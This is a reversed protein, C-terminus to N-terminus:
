RTKPLYPNFKKEHLLTTSEEHGPLVVYDNGLSCLKQLSKEMLMEDSEELDTRGVDGSFLTDGSFLWDQCIYCVSGKSHGPACLVQLEISGFNLMTDTDFTNTVTCNESSRYMSYKGAEQALKVDDKHCYVPANHYFVLHKVGGCHDFHGHTLLVAQLKLNNDTLFDCVKKGDTCDIVVACLTKEDWLVYNNTQLFKTTLISLKM